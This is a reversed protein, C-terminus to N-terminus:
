HNYLRIINSHLSSPSWQVFIERRLSTIYGIIGCHPFGRLFSQLRKEGIELKECEFGLEDTM